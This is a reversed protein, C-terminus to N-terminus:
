NRAKVRITATGEVIPRVYTPLCDITELPSAPTLRALEYPRGGDFLTGLIRVATFDGVAQVIGGTAREFTAWSTDDGSVEAWEHAGGTVLTPKIM